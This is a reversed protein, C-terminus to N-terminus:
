EPYGLVYRHLLVKVILLFVPSPIVPKKNIM